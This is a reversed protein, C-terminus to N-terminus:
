GGVGQLLQREGGQLGAGYVPICADLDLYV